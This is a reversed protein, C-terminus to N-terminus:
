RAEYIIYVYYYKYLTNKYIYRIIIMNNNDM